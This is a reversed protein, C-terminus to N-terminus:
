HYREDAPGIWQEVERLLRQPDCPKVIYGDCGAERARRGASGYSHASLVLVPIERTSPDQKIQRTAGFGDLVPISLDMIILDPRQERASRVGQLGDEVAVVRYGHSELFLANIARLEIQDEVILITKAAM